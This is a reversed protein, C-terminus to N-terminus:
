EFYFPWILSGLIMMINRLYFSAFIHNLSYIVM